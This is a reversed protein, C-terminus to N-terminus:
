NRKFNEKLIDIDNRKGELLRVHMYIKNIERILLKSKTMLAIEFFLIFHDFYERWIFSFNEFKKM